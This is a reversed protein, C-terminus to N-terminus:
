RAETSSDRAAEFRPATTCCKDGWNVTEYGLLASGGIYLFFTKSGDALFKYYYGGEGTFQAVPISGAKYPYNRCLYEAGFVWKNARGAYRSM